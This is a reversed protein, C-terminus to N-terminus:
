NLRALVDQDFWDEQNFSFSGVVPDIEVRMPPWIGGEAVLVVFDQIGDFNEQAGFSEIGLNRHILVTAINYEFRIRDFLPQFFPANTSISPDAHAFIVLVDFESRRSNFQTDIWELDAAQRTAWEQQDHVAGGVLNIGVFLIRKLVFSFNEPFNPEQRSVQYSPASWYKTDYSLLYEYWFSLAQEPDPCDNYENDGPVFYVPVSSIEFLDDVAQYSSEVCQTTFPSNFDGLHVMFSGTPPLLPLFSEYNSLEGDQPRGGTLYFVVETGTDAVPPETVPAEAVPAETIPANSVPSDTIPADSVPAKSFPAESVPADSMPAESFPADSFPADSVPAQSPVGTVVPAGSPALTKPAPTVPSPTVIVPALTPNRTAASPANTSIRTSPAASPKTSKTLLTPSFSPFHSGSPAPATPIAGPFDGEVVSSTEGGTFTSPNLAAAVAVLVVAGVLLATSLVIALKLWAPADTLWVPLCGGRPPEEDDHEGTAAATAARKAPSSVEGGMITSDDGDHGVIRFAADEHQTGTHISSMDDVDSPLILSEGDLSVGDGGLLSGVGNISPDDEGYDRDRRIRGLM